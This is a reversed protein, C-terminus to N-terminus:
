YRNYYDDDHPDRYIDEDYYDEDDEKWMLEDDWPGAKEIMADIFEYALNKEADSITQANGISNVVEAEDIEFDHWSGPDGVSNDFGYVGRATLSLEPGLVEEFREYVDDFIDDNNMEQCIYDVLSELPINYWGDCSSYGWAGGVMPNGDSPEYGSHQWENLVRSVSETIMQKLQSETLKIVTKKGM